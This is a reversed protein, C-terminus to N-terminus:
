DGGYLLPCERWNYTKAEVISILAANRIAVVLPISAPVTALALTLTPNVKLRKGVQLVIAPSVVSFIGEVIPHAFPNMEEIEAYKLGIQTTVFDAATGLLGLAYIIKEPGM